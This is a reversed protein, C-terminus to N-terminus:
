AGKTHASPMATTDRLQLVLIKDVQLCLLQQECQQSGQPGCRQRQLEAPSCKSVGSPPTVVTADPCTNLSVSAAQACPWGASRSWHVEVQLFHRSLPLM